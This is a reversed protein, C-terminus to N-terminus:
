WRLAVTRRPATRSQVALAAAVGVAGAVAWLPGSCALLWWILAFTFASYLGRALTTTIKM